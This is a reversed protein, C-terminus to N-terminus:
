ERVGFHTLLVQCANRVEADESNKAIKLWASIDASPRPITMSSKMFEDDIARKINRFTARGINGMRRWRKGRPLAMEEEYKQLFDRVM